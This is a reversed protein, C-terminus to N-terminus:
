ITSCYCQEVTELKLIKKILLIIIVTITLKVNIYCELKQLFFFKFLIYM